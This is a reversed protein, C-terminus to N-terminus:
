LNDGQFVFVGTSASRLIRSFASSLPLTSGRGPSIDGRDILSEVSMVGLLWLLLSSMRVLVTEAGLTIEIADGSSRVLPVGESASGRTSLVSRVTTVPTLPKIVQGGSSPAFEFFQTNM